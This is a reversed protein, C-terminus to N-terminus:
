GFALLHLAYFLFVYGFVIAGKKWKGESSRAEGTLLSYAHHVAAFLGFLVLVMVIRGLYYGLNLVFDALMPLMGPGYSLDFRILLVITFLLVAVIQRLAFPLIWLWHYWKINLVSKRSDFRGRYREGIRAGYYAAVPSTIVLAVPMVVIQKVQNTLFGGEAVYPFGVILAFLWFLVTPAVAVLAGTRAKSALFTGIVFAGAATSALSALIRLFFTDGWVALAMHEPPIGLFRQIVLSTAEELIIGLAIAFVVILVFNRTTPRKGIQETQIPM